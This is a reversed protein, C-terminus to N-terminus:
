DLVEVLELAIGDPDYFYVWKSNAMAGGKIYQPHYFFQVGKEKMREVCADIDKVRFAVHMAGIANQPMPKEIPSGPGPYELLELWSGDPLELMCSTTLADKVGVSFEFTPNSSLPGVEELQKCGLIDLYFPLSNKINRVTIAVHHMGKFHESM